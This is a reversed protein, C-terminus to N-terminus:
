IWVPCHELSQEGSPTFIAASSGTASIGECSGATSVCAQFEITSFKFECMLQQQGGAGIYGNGEELVGVISSFYRGFEEAIDCHDTLVRKEGRLTDIGRKYKSGFLRNIEKWTKRPNRALQEILGEFYHLKEKRLRRTVQNRLRKYQEWHLLLKKGEDICLSGSYDM